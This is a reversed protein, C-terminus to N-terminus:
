RVEGLPLVVRTSVRQRLGLEERQDKLGLSEQDVGSGVGSGVMGM